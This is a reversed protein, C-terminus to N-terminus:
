YLRAEDQTTTFDLCSITKSNKRERNIPMRSVIQRSERVFGPQLRQEKPNENM